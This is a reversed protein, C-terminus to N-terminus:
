VGKNQGRYKEQLNREIKRERSDLVRQLSWLCEKTTGLSKEKNKDKRKRKGQGKETERVDKDKDDEDENEYDKAGGQVSTRLVVPAPVAPTGVAGVRIVQQPQITGPHPTTGVGKSVMVDGLAVM